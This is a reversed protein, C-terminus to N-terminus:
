KQNYVVLSHLARTAAVYYLKMEEDSYPDLPDTYVIVGDFELGKAIYIPLVEIDKPVLREIKRAEEITKTVIGLKILGSGKMKEIDCLIDELLTEERRFKVPNDSNSRVIESDIGLLSNAFESIERSSRYSKALYKYKYDKFISGLEELTNYDVFPNLSQNKDGLITFTARKFMKKFLYFELVSYDQAEDILVVKVDSFIPYGKLEFTLYLLGTIDEYSIKELKEQGLFEAYLKLPDKEIKLMKAIAKYIRDGNKIEDIDLLECVRNSIFEIRESFSLKTPVKSKIGSLDDKSLIKKGLGIKQTFKLSSYYESLFKDIEYKYAISLKHRIVQDNIKNQTYVRELFEEQSEIPVSIYNAAFDEFTTTSVNEEGLEPLVESIYESFTENPSFLLVNKYSLNKQNYLLYAIRHLAVSTKGSGAAGEVLLTSTGSYRIIENQEKQITNVINRMHDTTNKKLVIDLIDDRSGTEDDYADVLHGFEIKFQRKKTTTGAIIGEETEYSSSGLGCNYYLNSVNARWDHVVPEYDKDIGTLGIYFKHKIGNEDFDVRAFYPSEQSRYLKYLKKVDANAFDTTFDEERMISYMETDSYDSLNQWLFRKRATITQKVDDLNAKKEKLTDAILEEVEKLHKKEKDFELKELM